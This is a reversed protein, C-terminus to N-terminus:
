SSGALMDQFGQMEQVTMCSGQIKLPQMIQSFAYELSIGHDQFSKTKGTGNIGKFLQAGEVKRLRYHQVAKRSESGEVRVLISHTTPSTSPCSEKM